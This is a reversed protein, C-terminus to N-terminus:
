GITIKWALTLIDSPQMDIVAIDDKSAFQITFGDVASLGVGLLADDGVAGGINFAGAGYDNTLVGQWQRWYNGSPVSHITTIMTLWLSNSDDYVVIGDKNAPDGGAHGTGGWEQGDTAFLDSGPEGLAFTGPAAFNDRIAAKLNAHFANVEAFEKVWLGKTAIFHWGEIFGSLKLADGKSLNNM